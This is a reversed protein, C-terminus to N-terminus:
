CFSQTSGDYPHPRLHGSSCWWETRPLHCPPLTVSDGYPFTRLREWPRPRARAGALSGSFKPSIGRESMERPSISGEPADGKTPGCGTDSTRVPGPRAQTRFYKATLAVSPVPPGDQHELVQHMRARLGARRGDRRPRAGTAPTGPSRPSGQRRRAAASSRIRTVSSPSKASSTLTRSAAWAPSTRKGSTGALWGMARIASTISRWGSRTPVFPVCGRAARGAAPSAPLVPWHGRGGHNRAQRHSWRDRPVRCGTPPLRLRGGASRASERRGKEGWLLRSGPVREDGLRPRPARQFGM